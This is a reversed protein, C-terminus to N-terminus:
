QVSIDYICDPITHAASQQDHIRAHTPFGEFTKVKGPPTGWKRRPICLLLGREDGM